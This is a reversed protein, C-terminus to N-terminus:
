LIKRQLRIGSSNKRCLLTGSSAVSDGRLNRTAIRAKVTEGPVYISRETSVLTVLAKGGVIASTAGSIARRSADTVTAEIVFEYSEFQSQASKQSEGVAEATFDFELRERNM